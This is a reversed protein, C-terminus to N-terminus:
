QTTTCIAIVKRGARTRDLIAKPRLNLDGRTTPFPCPQLIGMAITCNVIQAIHLLRRADRPLQRIARNRFVCHHTMVAIIRQAHSGIVQEQAIVRCICLVHCRLATLYELSARLAGRMSLLVIGCLQRCVIYAANTLTVLLALGHILKSQCVMDAFLRYPSCDASQCPFM